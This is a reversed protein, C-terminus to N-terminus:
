RELIGVAYEGCRPEVAGSITRKSGTAYGVVVVEDLAEVDEDLIINLNQQGNVPIEQSKYGIYSITLTGDKPAALTFNGDMDSITGNTTGKM